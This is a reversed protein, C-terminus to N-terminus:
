SLREKLKDLMDKPGKVFFGSPFGYPELNLVGWGFFERLLTSLFDSHARFPIRGEVDSFLHLDLRGKVEAPLHVTLPIKQDISKSKM